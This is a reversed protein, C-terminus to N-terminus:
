LRNLTATKPKQGEVTEALADFAKVQTQMGRYSLCMHGVCLLTSICAFVILAAAMFPAAEEDGFLWLSVQNLGLYLAAQSSLGFGLKGLWSGTKGLKIRPQSTKFLATDGKIPFSEVLNVLTFTILATLVPVTPFRRLVPGRNHAANQPRNRNKIWRYGGVCVAAITGYFIVKWYPFPEPEAFLMGLDGLQFNLSLLNGMAQYNASSKQIIKLREWSFSNSHYIVM